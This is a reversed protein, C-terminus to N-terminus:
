RPQLHVCGRLDVGGFARDAVEPRRALDHRARDKALAIQGPEAHGDSGNESADCAPLGGGM